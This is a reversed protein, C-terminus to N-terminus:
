EDEAHQRQDRGLARTILHALGQARGHEEAHDADREEADEERRHEVDHDAPERRLQARRSRTGEGGYAPSLSLTLPSERLVRGEGRGEGGAVPSLSFVLLTVTDACVAPSVECPM